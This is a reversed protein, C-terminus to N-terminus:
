SPARSLNAPSLALRDQILRALWAIEAISRDNLLEQRAGNRSEVVLSPRCMSGLGVNILDDRSWENSVKGFITTVSCTLRDPAITLLAQRRAVYIVALVGILGISLFIGMGVQWPDGGTQLEGRLAGVLMAVAILNWLMLFVLVLWPCSRVVGLPPLHVELSQDRQSLTARSTPPQSHWREGVRAVLREHRADLAREIRPGLWRRSVAAAPIVGAAGAFASGLVLFLPTWFDSFDFWWIVAIVLLVAIFNGVLGSQAALAQAHASRPSVQWECDREKSAVLAEDIARHIALAESLFGSRHEAPIIMGPRWIALRKGSGEVCWGPHEIFFKLLRQSFVERIPREAEHVLEAADPHLLRAGAVDAGATLRYQQAFARITRAANPTTSQSLFSVGTTGILSVLRVFFDSPGLEFTPVSRDACLLAVTQQQSGRHKLKFNGATASYTVNADMEYDVLEVSIGPLNTSMRNRAGSWEQFHPLSEWRVWEARPIEASFSWGENRCWATLSEIHRNQGRRTTSAIVVSVLVGITACFYVNAVPGGIWEVLRRNNIRISDALLWICVAIAAGTAAATM